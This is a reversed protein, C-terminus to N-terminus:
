GIHPQQCLPMASVKAQGVEDKFHDVETPTIWFDTRAHRSDLLPTGARFASDVLKLSQNGDMTALLSHKLQPENELTYLCAACANRMRWDPTDQKLM